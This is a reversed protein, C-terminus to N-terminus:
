AIRHWLPVAISQPINNHPQSGGTLGTNGSFRNIPVEGVYSGSASLGYGSNGSGITHSHSPINEIMLSVENEGYSGGSAYTDGASMLFTGEEAEEWITGPYYTMPNIDCHLWTGIPPAYTASMNVTTSKLGYVSAVCNTNQFGTQSVSCVVMNNSYPKMNAVIKSSGSVYTASHGDSVAGRLMMDDPVITTALARFSDDLQVDRYGAVIMYAIYKGEKYTFSTSTGYSGGEVSTMTVESIKELEVGTSIGAATMADNFAIGISDALVQPSVHKTM